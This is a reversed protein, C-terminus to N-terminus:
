ALREPNASLRGLVIRKQTFITGKLSDSDIYLLSILDLFQKRLILRFEEELGTQQARDARAPLASDCSIRQAPGPHRWQDVSSCRSFRCDATLSFAPQWLFRFIQPILSFPFYAPPFNDKVSTFFFFPQTYSIDSYILIWAVLYVCVCMYMSENYLSIYIYVKKTCHLHIYVYM